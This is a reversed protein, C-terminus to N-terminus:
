PVAVVIDSDLLRYVQVRTSYVTGSTTCYPGYWEGLTRPDVSVVHGAHSAINTRGNHALYPYGYYNSATGASGLVSYTPGAFKGGTPHHALSDGFLIRESPSINTRTSAAATAANHSLGNDDFYFAGNNFTRGGMHPTGYGQELGVKSTYPLTPCFAVKPPNSKFATRDKSGAMLGAVVLQYSWVRKGDDLSSYCYWVRYTDVYMRAALACDKLNGICQIAKAKDRAKNLAPLLMAALISIIAIVVLLEILTFHKKKNM